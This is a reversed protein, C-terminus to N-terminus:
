SIACGAGACFRRGRSRGRVRERHRGPPRAHGQAEPLGHRARDDIEIARYDVLPLRKAIATRAPFRQQGPRSRVEVRRRARRLHRRVHRRDVRQGSARHDPGRSGGPRGAGRARRRRRQNAPRRQEPALREDASRASRVRQLGRRVGVRAAAEDATWATLQLESGMSVGVREVLRPQRAAPHAGARRRRRRSSCLADRDKRPATSKATANYREAAPRRARHGHEHGRRSMPDSESACCTRIFIGRSRIATRSRWFCSTCIRRRDRRARRQTRVARRDRDDAGAHRHRGADRARKPQARLLVDRQPGSRLRLRIPRRAARQRAGM